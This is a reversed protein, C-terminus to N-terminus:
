APSRSAANGRTSGASEAAIQLLAGRVGSILRVLSWPARVLQRSRSQAGPMPAHPPGGPTPRTGRVRRIRQVLRTTPRLPDSADWNVGMYLYKAPRPLVQVLRRAITTKGAGDPGVLAVTFV